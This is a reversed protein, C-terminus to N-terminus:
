LSEDEKDDSYDEVEELVEGSRRKFDEVWLRIGAVLNEKFVRVRNFLVDFM